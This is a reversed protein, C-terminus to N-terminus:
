SKIISGLQTASDSPDGARLQKVKDVFRHLFEDHV